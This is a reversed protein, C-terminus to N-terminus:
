PLYPRLIAVLERMRHAYTHEALTRAQGSRAIAAREGEHELYWRAKESLDDADRYTVVERGVDFLENLDLREDTLLMSGVGTAEFLRMNNAHGEASANHRNLVIRAGAVIRYMDLGWARGRYRRALPSGSSLERTEPGWVDVAVDRAAAEIVANATRHEDGDLRGVFVVDHAPVDHLKSLVREDFGIRFLHTPLALRDLYHPFSTLIVDFQEVRSQQPLRSAIQGVLLRSRRKLTRLVLPHFAGISQVYVVDAQHWDAQASLIAPGALRWPLLALWPAHERAWARQLPESNPVVEHAEHGLARLNYSYADSTGFATAMIAEWQPRYPRSSLGATEAYLTELVQRYYPDVILVRM